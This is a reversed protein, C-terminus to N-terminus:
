LLLKHEILELEELELDILALKTLKEIEITIKEYSSSARDLKEGAYKNSQLGKKLQRIVSQKKNIYGQIKQILEKKKKAVIKKTESETADREATAVMNVGMFSFEINEEPFGEEILKQAAEKFANEVIDWKVKKFVPITIKKNGTIKEIRM